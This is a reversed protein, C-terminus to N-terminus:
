IQTKLKGQRANLWAKRKQATGKATGKMKKRAKFKQGSNKNNNDTKMSIRQRAKGNEAATGKRNLGHWSM